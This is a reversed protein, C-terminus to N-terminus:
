KEDVERRLGSDFLCLSLAEDRRSHVRNMSLMEDGGGWDKKRAAADELRDLVM